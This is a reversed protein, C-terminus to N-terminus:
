QKGRSVEAGPHHAAELNARIEKLTLWAPKFEGRAYLAAQDIYHRSEPNGSAGFTHISLARVRPAFEVVSVYTAGAVGYYRKQGPSPGAYFTFVAGVGGGVGPVPLSPRADEFQEGKSENRRQLRTLEGWSVRWTGFRQQLADLAENLAALRKEATVPTPGGSAIRDHWANFVTMAVSDTTARHDWATLLDYADGLRSNRQTSSARR